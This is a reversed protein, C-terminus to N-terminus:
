KTMPTKKYAADQTQRDILDILNYVDANTPASALIKHLEPHCDQIMEMAEGIDGGLRQSLRNAIFKVDDESFRKICERTQQDLPKSKLSM